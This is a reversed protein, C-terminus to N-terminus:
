GGKRSASQSRQQRAAVNTAALHKGGDLRRQGHTRFSPNATHRHEGPFYAGVAESDSQMWLDACPSQCGTEVAPPSDIANRLYVM